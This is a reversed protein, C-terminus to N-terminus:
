PKGPLAKCAVEDGGNEEYYISCGERNMASVNARVSNGDCCDKWCSEDAYGNECADDKKLLGEGLVDGSALKECIGTIRLHFPVFESTLYEQFAGPNIKLHNRAAALFGDSYPTQSVGKTGLYEFFTEQCQTYADNEARSYSTIRPGSAMYEAIFDTPWLSAESTEASHNVHIGVLKKETGELRFLPAGSLGASVGKACDHIVRYPDGVINKVECQTHVEDKNPGLIVLKNGIGLGKPFEYRIPADPGKDLRIIAFDGQGKGKGTIAGTCTSTGGNRWKIPEKNCLFGKDFCHYATLGLFGGGEKAALKTGIVSCVSKDAFSIEGVDLEVFKHVEATPTNRTGEAKGGEDPSCGVLLGSFAAAFVSVVKLTELKKM